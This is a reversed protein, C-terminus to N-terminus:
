YSTPVLYYRTRVVYYSTRVLKWLSTRIITSNYLLSDVISSWPISVRVDISKVRAKAPGTVLTPGVPAPGWCFDDSGRCFYSSQHHEM